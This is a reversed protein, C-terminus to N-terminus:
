IRVVQGVLDSLAQGHTRGAARRALYIHRVVIIFADKLEAGTDPLAAQIETDTLHFTGRDTVVTRHGGGACVSGGTITINPM